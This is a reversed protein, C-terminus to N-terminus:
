QMERELVIFLSLADIMRILVVEDMKACQLAVALCEFASLVICGCV